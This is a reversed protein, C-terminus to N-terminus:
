FLLHIWKEFYVFWGSFRRNPTPLSARWSRATEQLTTQVNHTIVPNVAPTMSSPVSSMRAVAYLSSSLSHHSGPNTGSYSGSVLAPFYESDLLAHAPAHDALFQESPVASGRPLGEM